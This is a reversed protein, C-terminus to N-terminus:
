LGLLNELPGKPLLVLFWREFVFYVLLPVGVAVAAVLSWRYRGHRRMFAGILLASALYIGVLGILAVYVAMPLLVALVSKLQGRSAFAPDAARWRRLQQVMLAGSAGALILGIYFPFYGSRPGDDAWGIGVRLSDAIVLLALCFLFAAVLLEPWRSAVPTDSSPESLAPESRL